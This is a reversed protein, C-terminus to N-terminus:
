RMGRARLVAALTSGPKKQQQQAAIQEPPPVAAGKNAGYYIPQPQAKPLDAQAPVGQGMEQWIQRARDQNTFDLQGRAERFLNEGLARRGFEMRQEHSASGYDPGLTEYNAAYGIVDEPRLDSENRSMAFKNNVLSGDPRYGVFDQAFNRDVLQDRTRGVKPMEGLAEPPLLGDDVLKKKRKWEEQFRDKDGIKGLAGIGGGALLGGLVIPWAFPVAAGLLAAGSTALGAGSLAGALPSKAQNAKFLGYASLAAGAGPILKSGIGAADAAGAGAMQEGGVGAPMASNLSPVGGAGITSAAGSGTQTAAGSSGFLNGVSDRLGGLVREGRVLDVAARTGLAGALMGGVQGIGTKQQEKAADKARDEATPLGNPFAQRYAEAAPVGRRVLDYYRLSAEQIDKQSMGM